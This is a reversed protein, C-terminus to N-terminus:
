GSTSVEKLTLKMTWNLFDCDITQVLYKRGLWWDNDWTVIDGANLPFYITSVDRTVGTDSDEASYQKALQEARKQTRPSMDSVQHVETKVWGRTNSIETHDFYGVIDAEDNNGSSVVVTRNVIDGYQDDDSFGPSLVVGRTISTDLSYRATKNKPPVYRSITIRGHPDVGLQNSSISCLDKLISLYSDTRSWAVAKKYMYDGHGPNFVVSKRVVKCITKIAQSAKCNARVTYLQYALDNQLMWLVSQLSYSREENEKVTKSQVGFTGIETGDVKFRLWSGKKYNDDYTELSASVKTDSDYGYTVSASTIGRLEGRSKELNWPDIMEVTFTHEQSADLWKSPISM